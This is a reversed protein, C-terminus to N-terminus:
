THSWTDDKHNVVSEVLLAKRGSLEGYSCKAVPVDDVVVSIQESLDIKFEDGVALASLKSFPIEFEGLIATVEVGAQRVESDIREHWAQEEEPHSDRPPGSLMERIPELMHFPLVINFECTLSGIELKFVSNAVIDNQSTTISAFQPQVESRAFEVDVPHVSQWAAKYNSMALELVTFMIRQEAQTFERGDSRGHSQGTGGFLIDVVCFVMKPMFAILGMGKLPKMNVLNLNAPNPLHRSFQHYTELKLEKCTIDVSKRLQNYLGLRFSRAFRENIIELAPLRDRIVRHQNAPNFPRPDRNVSEDVAQTPSTQDSTDSGMDGILLKDIEDQSLLDQEKSSM